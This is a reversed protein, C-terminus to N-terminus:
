WRLKYDSIVIKVYFRKNRLFLVMNVETLPGITYLIGLAKQKSFLDIFIGCSPSSIFNRKQIKACAREEILLSASSITFKM